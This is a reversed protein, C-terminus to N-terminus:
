SQNLKKCELKGDINEVISLSNEAFCSFYVISSDKRENGVANLCKATLKVGDFKIDTCTEDYNGSPLTKGDLSKLINMSNVLKITSNAAFLNIGDHPGFSTSLTNAVVNIIDWTESTKEDSEILETIKDPLEKSILDYYWMVIDTNTKAYYKKWLWLFKTKSWNRKSWQKLDSRINKGTYGTFFNNEVQSIFNEAFARMESNDGVWIYSAIFSQNIGQGGTQSLGDINIGFIPILKNSLDRPELKDIEDELWGKEPKNRRNDYATQDFIKKNTVVTYYTVLNNISNIPIQSIFSVKNKVFDVRKKSDAGFTKMTFYTDDLNSKIKFEQNMDDSSFISQEVWFKGASQALIKGDNNTDWHASHGNVGEITIDNDSANYIYVYGKGAALLLSSYVFLLFGMVVKKM